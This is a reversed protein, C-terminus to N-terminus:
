SSSGEQLKKERLIFALQLAPLLGFVEISLLAAILGIAAGAAGVGGYIGHLYAASSVLLFIIVACFCLMALSCVLALRQGWRSFNLIGIGSLATIPSILLLFLTLPLSRSPLVFLFLILYVAALLLDSLGYIRRVTKSTMKMVSHLFL